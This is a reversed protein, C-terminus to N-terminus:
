AQAGCGPCVKGSSGAQLEEGDEKEKQAHEVRASMYAAFSAEINAYLSCAIIFVLSERWVTLGPVSLAVWCCIM